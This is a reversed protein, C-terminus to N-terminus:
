RFHVELQKCFEARKFKTQGLRIQFNFLNEAIWLMNKAAHIDRDETVGCCTVTKDFQEVEHTKGCISCFKTTPIFKDLVVVNDLRKLKEKVRGLISHSIVKGHGTKSWNQLQEDQIVIMKHQKLNAVIKNAKDNKVNTLKQYERNLLLKTKFYNNSRKVKKQLKRQLRKLRDTEEVRANIKEGTSLNLSNSCGFDIGVSEKDSQTKPLKNKDIFTTIVIYYGKPTNLLKLNAVEIGEINIFQNLGNVRIDKSVGQLKIKYPSKIKHTIGNQIFNLSKFDSIYKLRGGHKQYGKKKLSSITKISSCIQQHVSVKLSSTLYDLQVSKRNKDKDQIEVEKCDKTNFKFIDNKEDESWNLIHNYLRKAEVFLM